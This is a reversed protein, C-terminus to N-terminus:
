DHLPALRIGVRNRGRVKGDTDIVRGSVTVAKSVVVRVDDSDAPVSTFSALGKEESYAFLLFEGPKRMIEFRAQDNATTGGTSALPWLIIRARTVPRDGTATKEVVVGKLRREDSPVKLTVDHVIEAERKVDITVDEGGEARSKGNFGRVAFRGPGVRF